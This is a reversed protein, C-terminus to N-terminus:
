LVIFYDVVHNLQITYIIERLDDGIDTIFDNFLGLYSNGKLIQRQGIRRSSYNV